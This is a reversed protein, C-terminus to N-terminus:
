VVVVERELLIDYIRNIKCNVEELQPYARSDYIAEDIFINGLNHLSCSLEFRPQNHCVTSEIQTNNYFSPPSCPTNCEINQSRGILMRVGLGSIFQKESNVCPELQKWLAKQSLPLNKLATCPNQHLISMIEDAGFWIVVDVLLCTVDTGEFPKIFAKSDAPISSM